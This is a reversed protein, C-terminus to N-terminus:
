LAATLSNRMVMPVAADAADDALALLGLADVLFGLAMAVDRRQQRLFTGVDESLRDGVDFGALLDVDVDLIEVCQFIGVAPVFEDEGHDDAGAEIWGAAGIADPGDGAAM